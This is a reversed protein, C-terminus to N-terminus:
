EKIYTIVEQGESLGELIEVIGEDGYIGTKVNIEKLKDNELIRVVKIRVVKGQSNKEIIARSPIALVNPKEDTTITVNATMGPRIEKSLETSSDFYIKTKYYIVDQIVTEAPEISFVKGYFKMEEGLSDLTIECHDGGSIKNIDSESIDVHVELKNDTLIYIITQNASVREGEEYEIKTITGDIPAIISSNEIEHNITELSAEAQKVQAQKLLIDQQRAPAKLEEFQAEAYKWIEYNTDITSQANVIQQEGSVMATNLTNTKSLITDNLNQKAIQVSSLSSSITTIQTSINTKHTDLETQTFSSSVITNELMDYCNDLASFVENLAIICSDLANNVNNKINQIRATTLDNKAATIYDLADNYDNTTLTVTIKNKVGLVYKADNNELITNIHDLAMEGKSLNTEISILGDSKKNEIELEKNKEAQSIEETVSKKIVGLTEVSSLYATKAKNVNTQSVAIEYETAGELLKNLNARVIELNAVADKKRILLNQYDLKALLDTSSVKDGIEILIKSIKGNNLFSLQIENSSKVTGTESVTQILNKREVPAFTYEPNNKNKFTFYAIIIVLVIISSIIIIKKKKPKKRKLVDRAHQPTLIENPSDKIIEESM